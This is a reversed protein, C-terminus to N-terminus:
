GREQQARWPDEFEPKVVNPLGLETRAGYLRWGEKYKGMRLLVCALNYRAIPEKPVYAVIERYLKEAAELDNARAATAARKFLWALAERAMEEDSPM